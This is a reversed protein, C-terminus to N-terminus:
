TSRRLHQPLHCVIGTTLDRSGNLNQHAGVIHTTVDITEPAILNHAHDTYYVYLGSCRAPSYAVANHRGNGLVVTAFRANRQVAGAMQFESGFVTRSLSM